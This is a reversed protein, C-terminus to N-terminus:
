IQDILIQATKRFENVDSTNNEITDTANDKVYSVNMQIEEAINSQPTWQMNEQKQFEEISLVIEGERLNNIAREYRVQTSSEIWILNGFNKLIFDVEIAARVSWVLLGKYHKHRQAIKYLQLAEQLAFDSGRTQRLWTSTETMNALSISDPKNAHRHKSFNRIIDGLSVGFFGNDIFMDALTDKGSRPLGGIGIIKIKPPPYVM